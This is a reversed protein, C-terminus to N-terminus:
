RHLLYYAAVSNAGGDDGEQSPNLEIMVRVRQHTHEDKLYRVSRSQAGKRKTFEAAALITSDLHRIGM